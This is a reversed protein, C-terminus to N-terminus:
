KISIIGYQSNYYKIEYGQEYLYPLQLNSIICLHDYPLEKINTIYRYNGYAELSRWGAAGKWVANKSLNSPSPLTYWLLNSYIITNYGLIYIEEDEQTEDIAIRLIEECDNGRFMIDEGANCYTYEFVFFSASMFVICIYVMAKSNISKAVIWIGYAGYFILPILLLNMHIYSTYESLSSVIVGCLFWTLFLYETYDRKKRKIYKILKILHSIIGIFMFPMTFYYFAGVYWSARFYTGDTQFIINRITDCFIPIVNHINLERSRFLELRPVSFYPTIIEEMWGLNIAIFLLLPLAMMFLLGTSLATIKLSDYAKRALFFTCFLFLPLVIWALAYAYLTLGWLAAAGLLYWRSKKISLVFLCFGLLFLNPAMNADLGYRSAMIHWPNIALVFACLLGINKNWLEKGTVYMAYICMTGVLAQPLRFVGISVGFAKFFWMAIYSNLVSMGSGWAVFYVPFSYGSDDIGETMLAYSQYAAYAEDQNVGVPIHSLGILRVLAALVVVGWIANKKLYKADLVKRLVQMVWNDREEIYKNDKKRGQVTVSPEM